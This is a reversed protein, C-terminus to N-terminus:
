RLHRLERLVAILTMFSPRMAKTAGYNIVIDADHVPDHWLHAATIGLHGVVRPWGRLWPTLGEIRVNMTGAGYHLGARYRNRSRTLWAWSESSVLRGTHLANILRLYDDLTSALGGGAWDLTLAPAADVRTDGFYLPALETSGGAPKTRLPMFSRTMGLPAFVREHVLQEYAKGTISELALGLVTFGTDSYFFKSGPEGVPKQHQRAHDLLSQPTWARQPQYMGIEAVTPGSTKGALYDNAGSTHTLLHSITVEALHQETFLGHLTQRDLVSVVPTDLSILGQEALQMTLAAPVLKGVSASHAALDTDGYRYDVGLGPARVAVLPQWKRSQKELHATLRASFVDTSM